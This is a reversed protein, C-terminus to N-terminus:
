KEEPHLRLSNMGSKLKKIESLGEPTLHAKSAMLSSIKKWDLFDQLKSGYISYTEFFPIIIELIDKIKTVRFSTAAKGCPESRGCGFFSTLSKILLMDRNDQSVQYGLKIQYSSKGKNQQIAVFFCGEAETFGAVWHPNISKGMNLDILGKSNSIEELERLELRRAAGPVILKVDPFSEKLTNSLGKNISAKISVMKMLGQESLHDKNEYIQLAEKFLLFDLHKKTLLSYRDFHEVIVKLERASLVRWVVTNKHHSLCGIGGFYSQISKLLWTDKKHLGISFAMNVTYGTKNISRKSITIHFCGEGDVFGTVFFPNLNLQHRIEGGDLNYENVGM